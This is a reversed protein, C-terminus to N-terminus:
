AGATFRDLEEQSVRWKGCLKVAQLRGTKVYKLLTVHTVGIINELETLTYYKKDM